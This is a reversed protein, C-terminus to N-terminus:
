GATVPRRAFTRNKTDKFLTWGPARFAARILDRHKPGDAVLVAGGPRTAGIAIDLVASRATDSVLMHLVRDLLVVDYDSPPEFTAIDAVVGTVDLGEAAAIADLQAIGVASLDVGLVRSGRRAFVLADRGQGCGLDLVDVGPHAEAFAAFAPFPDGCTADSERYYQDYKVESM